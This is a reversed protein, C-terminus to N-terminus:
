KKDKELSRIWDRLEIAGTKELYHFVDKGFCDKRHLDAGAELLTLILSRDDSAGNQLATKAYMLPTTGSRGSADPDAGRELLAKVVGHHQNFAAVILPTWGQATRREILAPFADLQATVIDVRGIECGSILARFAQEILRGSRWSPFTLITERKEEATMPTNKRPRNAEIPTLEGKDRLAIFRRLARIQSQYNNHQVIEPSDEASVLTEEFFLLDGADVRGDIFHATAGMPSQRKITYFFADLGSTEPIMGPHINLVGEPFLNIIPSQLIRAGAIVALSIGRAEVELRIRELDSHETEILDFGLARCITVTDYPKANSLGTPFFSESAGHPLKKWPAALVLVNRFGALALECLFDQSKRHSFAYVFIAICDRQPMM